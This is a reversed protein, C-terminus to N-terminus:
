LRLELKKGSELKRTCEANTLIQPQVTRVVPDKGGGLHIDSHWATKKQQPKGQDHLAVNVNVFVCVCLPFYIVHNRLLRQKGTM